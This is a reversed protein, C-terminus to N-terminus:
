EIYRFFSDREYDGSWTGLIERWSPDLDYPPEPYRRMRLIGKLWEDWPANNRDLEGFKEIFEPATMARLAVRPVITINEIPHTSNLILEDITPDGVYALLAAVKTRTHPYLLPYHRFCRVLFALVRPNSLSNQLTPHILHDILRAPYEGVGAILDDLAADAREILCNVMQIEGTKCITEGVSFACNGGIESILFGIVEPESVGAMAKIAAVKVDRARNEGLVVLLDSNASDGALCSAIVLKVEKSADAVHQRCINKAAEPDIRHIATLRRGHATKGKPDFGAVLAPLALEGLMPMFERAVLDALGTHRDGLAAIAPGVLRPDRLDGADVAERIRDYRGEGKQTLVGILGEIDMTRDQEM